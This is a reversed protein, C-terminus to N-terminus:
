TCARTSDVCVYWRRSKLTGISECSAGRCWLSSVLACGDRERYRASGIPAHSPRHWVHAPEHHRGLLPSEVFRLNGHQRCSHDPTNRAGCRTLPGPLGEVCSRQRRFVLHLGRDDWLLVYGFDTFRIPSAMLYPTRSTGTLLVLSLSSTVSISRGMVQSSAASKSRTWGLVILRM